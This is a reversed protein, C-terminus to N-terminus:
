TEGKARDAVIADGADWPFSKPVNPLWGGLM